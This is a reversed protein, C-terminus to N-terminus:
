IRIAVEKIKNNIRLNVEVERNSLNRIETSQVEISTEPPIIFTAVTTKPETPEYEEPLLLKWIPEIKIRQTKEEYKLLGHESLFKVFETLKAAELGLHESLEDISHWVGDKIVEFFRNISLLLRFVNSALPLIKTKFFM